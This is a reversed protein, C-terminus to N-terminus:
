IIKPGSTTAHLSRYWSGLSKWLTVLQQHTNPRVFWLHSWTESEEQSEWTPDYIERKVEEVLLSFPFFAGSPLFTFHSFCTTKEGLDVLQWLLSGRWESDVFCLIVELYPNTMYLAARHGGECVCVFVCRWVDYCQSSLPLNGVSDNLLEEFRKIFSIKAKKQSM